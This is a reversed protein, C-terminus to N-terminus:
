LPHLEPLAVHEGDLGHDVHALGGCQEHVVAPGHDGGVAGQRGVELVGDGDGVVAGLDQGLRSEPLLVATHADSARNDRVKALTEPRGWATHRAELAPPPVRSPGSESTWRGLGLSSAITSSPVTTSGRGLAMNRTSSSFPWLTSAWMEPFIRM